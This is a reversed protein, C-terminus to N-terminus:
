GLHRPLTIRGYSRIYKALSNVLNAYMVFVVLGVIVVTIWILPLLAALPSATQGAPWSVPMVGTATASGLVFVMSLGIIVKGRRAMEPLELYQALRILFLMFLFGPIASFFQQLVFLIVLDGYPALWLNVIIIAFGSVVSLVIYPRAKSEVPVRLCLLPGFLFLAFGLLVLSVRAWMLLSFGGIMMVFSFVVSLMATLIILILGAYHLRLGLGTMQLLAFKASDDPELLMADAVAPSAYPNLKDGEGM